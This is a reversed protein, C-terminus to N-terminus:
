QLICRRFRAFNFNIFIKRGQSRELNLFKRILVSSLIHSTTAPWTTLNSKPNLGCGTKTQCAQKLTVTRENKGGQTFHTVSKLLDSRVGVYFTKDTTYKHTSMM